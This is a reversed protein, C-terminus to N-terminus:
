EPARPQRSGRGERAQELLDERLLLLAHAFVEELLHLPGPVFRHLDHVYGPVLPQEQLADLLVRRTRRVLRQLVDVVLEPRAIGRRNGVGALEKLADFGVRIVAEDIEVIKKASAYYASNAVTLLKATLPPDVRIIEALDKGTSKPDNIIDIIGTTISKIAVEVAIDQNIAVCFIGWFTLAANNDMESLLIIIRKIILIRSKNTPVNISMVGATSIKVGMKRGTTM